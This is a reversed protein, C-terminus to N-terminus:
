GHNFITLLLPGDHREPHREHDGSITNV